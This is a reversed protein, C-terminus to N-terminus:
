KSCDPCIGGNMCPEDNNKNPCWCLLEDDVYKYGVSWDGGDRYYRDGKLRLTTDLLQVFKPPKKNEM